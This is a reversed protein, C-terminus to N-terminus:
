KSRVTEVSGHEEALSYLRAEPYEVILGYNELGLLDSSFTKSGGDIIGRDATPRSIVTALVSFSCQELTIAEANM